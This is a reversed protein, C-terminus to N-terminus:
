ATELEQKLVSRPKDMLPFAKPRRKRMRPESNVEAQWRLGYLDALKAKPYAKPDLLTTVVIVSKTWWGKPHVSFHVERVKMITPLSEFETPSLAQPRRSPRSWTTLCDGKGLREGRKFDSKRSQHKRFVGDAGRQHVLALDAYTGYARDGLAVDRPALSEYLSRALTM